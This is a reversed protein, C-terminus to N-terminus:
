FFGEVRYCTIDRNASTQMFGVGGHVNPYLSFAALVIHSMYAVVLAM